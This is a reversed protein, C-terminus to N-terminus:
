NCALDQMSTVIGDVLYLYACPYAWQERRHDATLTVNIRRPEGWPYPLARADAATMGIRPENKAIMEAQREASERAAADHEALAEAPTRLEPEERIAGVGYCTSQERLVRGDPLTCKFGTAAAAQFSVFILSAFRLHRSKHM